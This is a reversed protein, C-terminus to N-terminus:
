ATCNPLFLPINRMGGNARLKSFIMQITMQYFASKKKSTDASETLRLIIMIILRTNIFFPILNVEDDAGAYDSQV